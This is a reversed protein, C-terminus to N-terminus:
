QIYNRLYYTGIEYTLKEAFIRMNEKMFFCGYKLFNDLQAWNKDNKHLMKHIDSINKGHLEKYSFFSRAYMSISNREWDRQRWIFYNVVDEKPINFVRCDFLAPSSNNNDSLESNFKYTALSAAVSTMKQVNYNFWSETEPSDYDTILLSIEDSQHYVLKAGQIQTLLYKSTDHFIRILNLDFPKKYKKTFTHFAKGDIRMIVPIKRTLYTRSRNEYCQKMRDGLSNMIMM